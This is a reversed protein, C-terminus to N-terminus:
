IKCLYLWAWYNILQRLQHDIEEDDDDTKKKKLHPRVSDSSRLSQVARKRMSRVAEIYLSMVVHM